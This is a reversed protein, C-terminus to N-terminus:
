PSSARDVLGLRSWVNPKSPGSIGQLVKPSCRSKMESTPCVGLRAQNTPWLAIRSAAPTEPGCGVSSCDARISRKMRSAISAPASPMDVPSSNLGPRSAVISSSSAGSRSRPRTRRCRCSGRGCGPRRSGARSRVLEELDGTRAPDARLDRVEVDPVVRVRRVPAPLARDLHHRRRALLAHVHEGVRRGEEVPEALQGPDQRGPDGGVAGLRRERAQAVGLRALPQPRLAVAVPAEDVLALPIADAQLRALLVGVPVPEREGLDGIERVRVRPVAVEVDEGVRAVGVLADEDDAPEEGVLVHRLHDRVREEAEADVGERHGLLPREGVDEPMREAVRAM